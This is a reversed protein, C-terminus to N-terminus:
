RELAKLVKNYEYRINNGVKLYPIKNEKRYRSITTRSINLRECLQNESLIEDSEIENNFHNSLKENIVDEVQKRIEIKLIRIIEEM